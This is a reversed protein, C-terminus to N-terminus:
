LAVTQQVTLRMGDAVSGETSAVRFTGRTLYEREHEFLQQDSQFPGLPLAQAGESLRVVAYNENSAGIQTAYDEATARETTYSSAQTDFTSGPQMSAQFEEGLAPDEDFSMGRYLPSDMPPSASLAADLTDYGPTSAAELESRAEDMESQDTAGMWEQAAALTARGTETRGLAEQFAQAEEWTSVDKAENAITAGAKETTMKDLRDLPSKSATSAGSKDQPRSGEFHGHEGQIFDVAALRTEGRAQRQEAERQAVPLFEAVVDDPLYGKCTEHGSDEVAAFRKVADGSVLSYGDPGGIQGIAIDLLKAPRDPMSAGTQRAAFAEAFNEVKNGRGYESVANADRGLGIAAASDATLGYERDLVHGFEHAATADPNASPHFALEDGPKPTATRESAAQFGTSSMYWTSNFIVESTRVGNEDVGYRTAAFTSDKLQGMTIASVQGAAEPFESAFQEAQAAIGAALGSDMDGLNVDANPFAEGIRDEIANMRDDYAAAMSPSQGRAIGAEFRASSADTKTGGGEGFRGHDDRPQDPSYALRALVQASAALAAARWSGGRQGDVQVVRPPESGSGMWGVVVGALDSSTTTGDRVYLHVIAGDRAVDPDTSGESLTGYDALDDPHGEADKPSFTEEQDPDATTMPNSRFGVEVKANPSVGEARRADAALTKLRAAADKKTLPDGAKSGGGSDKSEGSGSGSGEGFRGHDDRPQDPSYALRVLAATAARLLVGKPPHGKGARSM